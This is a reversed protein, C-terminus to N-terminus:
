YGVIAAVDLGGLSSFDDDARIAVTTLGASRLALDVVWAAAITDIRVVAARGPALGLGQFRSRLAAIANHFARYSIPELNYILAPADPRERAVERIKDTVFM